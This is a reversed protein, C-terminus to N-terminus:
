ERKEPGGEGLAALCLAFGAGLDGEGLEVLRRAGRHLVDEEAVAESLVEVDDQGRAAVVDGEGCGEAAGAETARGPLSCPQLVIVEETEM